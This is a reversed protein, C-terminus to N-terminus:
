IRGLERLAQERTILNNNLKTLINDIQTKEISARSDRGVLPRNEFRFRVEANIGALTLEVNAIWDLMALAATQVTEVQRQVLEYKFEAWNLTTGYSYGLMFPALHAGACIDEIMAKHNVYWANQQSIRASPGIYEIKVDDWTVPNKDPGFDRMMGVTDDFYSNARAVYDENTEDSRKEPPTIKVHIRQYGANRMSRYMDNVLTQEVRAVFPISQLLSRGGVDGPTSGLGYYFITNSNLRIRKGDVIQFIAPQSGKQEIEIQRMDALAFRDVRRQTPSLQLEGCVSGDTFLSEFFQLLLENFGARKMLGNRCIRQDLKEIIDHVERHIREPQEGVLDYHRGSACLRVWTWIVSSLAPINDRMFRYLEVRAQQTQFHLPYSRQGGIDFSKLRARAPKVAAQTVVSKRALNGVVPGGHDRIRRMFGRFM